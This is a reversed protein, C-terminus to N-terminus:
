EGEFIQPETDSSTTRSIIPKSEPIQLDRCEGKKSSISLNQPSTQRQAIPSSHQVPLPMPPPPPPPPTPAKTQPSRQTPCLNLVENMVKRYTKPNLAGSCLLSPHPLANLKAANALLNQQNLVQGSINALNPLPPLPPFGPSINFPNQPCNLGPTGGGTQLRQIYETLYAWNYFSYFPNSQLHANDTSHETLKSQKQEM